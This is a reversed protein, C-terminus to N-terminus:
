FKGFEEAKKYRSILELQMRNLLIMTFRDFKQGLIQTEHTNSEKQVALNEGVDRVHLAPQRARAEPPAARM